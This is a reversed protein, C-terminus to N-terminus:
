IVEASPINRMCCKFSFVYLCAVLVLKHSLLTFSAHSIIRDTMRVM